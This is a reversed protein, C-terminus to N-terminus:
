VRLRHASDTSHKVLAICPGLVRLGVAGRNAVVGIHLWFLQSEDHLSGVSFLSLLDHKVHNVEVRLAALNEGSDGFRTLELSERDRRISM